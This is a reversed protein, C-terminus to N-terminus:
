PVEIAVGCTAPSAPKNSETFGLRVTAWSLFAMRFVTSRFADKLPFTDVPPRILALAANILTNGFEVTVTWLAPAPVPVTVDFGAPISQRVAHLPCNGCPLVTFRVAAGSKPDTKAPHLPSQTPVPGQVSVWFAVTVAVKLMTGAVGAELWALLPPPPPQVSAGPVVPSVNSGRM